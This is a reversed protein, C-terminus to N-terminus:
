VDLSHNVPTSHTGNELAYEENDKQNGREEVEDLSRAIDHWSSKGNM